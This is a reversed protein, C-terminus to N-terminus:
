RTPTYDPASLEHPWGWRECTSTTIVVGLRVEGDMRYVDRSRALHRGVCHLLSQRAPLLGARLLSIRGRSCYEGRTIMWHPLVVANMAADFREVQEEVTVLLREAAM